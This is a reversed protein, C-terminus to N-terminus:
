HCPFGLAHRTDHAGNHVAMESAFGIGGILTLGLFLAVLGAVLRQSLSLSSVSVTQASSMM